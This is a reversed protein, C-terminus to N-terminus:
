LLGGVADTVDELLTTAEEETSAVEDDIGEVVEILSEETDEVSEYVIESSESVAEETDEIVEEVIEPAEEVVEEVVETVVEESDDTAISVVETPDSEEVIEVEDEPDSDALTDVTEVVEDVSDSVVEPEGLDEALLAWEIAQNKHRTSKATILAIDDNIKDIADGNDELLSLYHDEESPNDLFLQTLESKEALLEDLETLKTEKLSDLALRFDNNIDSITMLPAELENSFTSYQDLLVEEFIMKELSYTTDRLDVGRLDAGLLSISSLDADTLDLARLDGCEGIFDLNSGEDSSLDECLGSSTDFIFDIGSTVPRSSDVLDINLELVENITESIEDDEPAEQQGSSIHSATYKSGQLANQILVESQKCGTLLLSIFTITTFFQTKMREDLIGDM